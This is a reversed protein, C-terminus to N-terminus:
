KHFAADEVSNWFLRQVNNKQPFTRVYAPDKSWLINMAPLKVLEMWIILGVLWKIENGNTSVQQALRKSKKKLQVQMAYINTQESIRDCMGDTVFLVYFDPEICSQVHVNNRKTGM